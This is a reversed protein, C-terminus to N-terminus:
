KRIRSAWGRDGCARCRGKERGELSYPYPGFLRYTGADYNKFGVPAHDAAEQEQQMEDVLQQARSSKSDSAAADARTKRALDALSGITASNDGGNSQLATQAWVALALGFPVSWQSKM